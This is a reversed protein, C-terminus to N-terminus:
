ARALDVVFGSEGDARPHVSVNMHACAYGVALGAGVGILAGPVGALAAGAGMGVLVGAASCIVVRENNPTIYHISIRHSRAFEKLREIVLDRLEEKVNFVAPSGGRLHALLRNIDAARAIHLTTQM